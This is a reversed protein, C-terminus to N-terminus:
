VLVQMTAHAFQWSDYDTPEIAFCPTNAWSRWTCADEEGLLLPRAGLDEAQGRVTACWTTSEM